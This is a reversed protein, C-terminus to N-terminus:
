EPKGIQTGTEAADYTAKMATRALAVQNVARVYKEAEGLSRHGSIAMIQSASCGAEALRRCAAKRLGHASYGKPIGAENCWDRFLNGFGAASFPKGFETMLFTLHDAPTADIVRKLEPHIPIQLLAGTKNQRVSLLDGRLHQRGMRVVDGRRQASFLLLALALRARTGIAHGREFAEIHEEGWTKYGDTKAKPAAVRETPDDKRMGEAIAFQMLARLTKRFNRAAAPTKIKASIMTEVHKPLLHAVRCRGNNLKAGPLTDVRFREIINRRTRQTEASWGAFITSAYFRVILADFTGARTRGAGIERKPLSDGCMADEYAAMFEPSYPLGPM